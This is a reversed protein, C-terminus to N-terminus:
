EMKLWAELDFDMGKGLDKGKLGRLFKDDEVGLFRLKVDRGEIEATRVLSSM